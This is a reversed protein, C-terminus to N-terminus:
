TIKIPFFFLPLTHNPLFHSLFPDYLDLIWIENWCVSQYPFIDEGEMRLDGFFLYALITHRCHIHVSQAQLFRLGPLCVYHCKSLDLKLHDGTWFAQLHWGSSRALPFTWGPLCARGPGLYVPGPWWAACARTRTLRCSSWTPEIWLQKHVLSLSSM